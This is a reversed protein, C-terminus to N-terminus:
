VHLPKILSFSFTNNESIDKIQSLEELKNTEKNIFFMRGSFTILFSKALIQNVKFPSRVFQIKNNQIAVLIVYVLGNSLNVLLISDSANLIVKKMWLPTNGFTM